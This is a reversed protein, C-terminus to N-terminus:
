RWWPPDALADGHVRQPPALVRYLEPHEALFHPNARLFASVEEASLSSSPLPATAM